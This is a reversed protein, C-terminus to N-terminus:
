LQTAILGAVFTVYGALLLRQLSDFRAEIRAFRFDLKAELKDFRDEMRDFRADLRQDTWAERTMAEM